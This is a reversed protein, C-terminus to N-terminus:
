DRSRDVRPMHLSLLHAKRPRAGVNCDRTALSKRSRLSLMLRIHISAVTLHCYHLRAVRGVGIGKSLVDNAARFVGNM